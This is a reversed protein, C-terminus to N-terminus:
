KITSADARNLSDAIYTGNEQRYNIVVSDGSKVDSLSLRDKDPSTSSTSGDGIKFTRTGATGQVTVTKAEADVATVRGHFTRDRDAGVASDTRRDLTSTGTGSSTSAPGGLATNGPMWYSSHTRWAPTTVDPWDNKAFGPANQIRAKDANLVLSKDDPAVSFAEPTIAIYKDGIGLFGGVSLVAYAIRGSHLDLVLDKIDGLKENQNNRVDMGILDSAKNAKGVTSLHDTPGATIQNRDTTTNDNRLVPAVQANAQGILNACLAMASSAVFMTKMTNM